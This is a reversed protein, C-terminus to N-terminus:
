IRAQQGTCLNAAVVIRQVVVVADLVEGGGLLSRLLPSLQRQPQLAYWRRTIVYIRLNSELLLCCAASRHLSQGVRILDSNPSAAQVKPCPADAAVTKVMTQTDSSTGVHRWRHSVTCANLFYDHDHDGMNNNDLATHLTPSWWFGQVSGDTRLMTMLCLPLLVSLRSQLRSCDRLCCDHGRTRVGQGALEWHWCPYHRMKSHWKSMCRM